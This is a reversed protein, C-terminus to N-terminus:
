VEETQGASPGLVEMELEYRKKMAEELWPMQKASAVVTFDGGHVTLHVRRAQHAFNCPSARGM